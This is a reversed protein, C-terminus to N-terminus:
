RPGRGSNRRGSVLDAVITVPWFLVALVFSRPQRREAMAGRDLLGLFIWGLLLYIAITGLILPEFV